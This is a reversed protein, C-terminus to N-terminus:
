SDPVEGEGEPLASPEAVSFIHPSLIGSAAVLKELVGLFAVKLELKLAVGEAFTVGKSLDSADVFSLIAEPNKLALLDDVMHAFPSLSQVFDHIWRDAEDM